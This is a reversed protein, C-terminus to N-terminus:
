GARAGGPAFSIVVLDLLAIGNKKPPLMHAAVQFRGLSPNKRGEPAQPSQVFADGM